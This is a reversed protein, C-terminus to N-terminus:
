DWVLQGKANLSAAQGSSVVKGGQRVVKKQQSNYIQNIKESRTLKLERLGLTM